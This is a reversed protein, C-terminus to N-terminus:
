RRTLRSYLWRTWRLGAMRRVVPDLQAPVRRRIRTLIAAENPQTVESRPSQRSRATGAKGSQRGPPPTRVVRMQGGNAIKLTLGTMAPKAPGFRTALDVKGPPGSLWCEVRSGEPNAVLRAPLSMRGLLLAGGLEAHATVWLMPLRATLLTGRASETVSVQRPSLKSVVSRRTAGVDISMVGNSALPVVMVGDIVAPAVGRGPCRQRWWPQHDAGYAHVFVNWVGAELAEGMAASTVDIDVTMRTGDPGDTREVPLWFDEGADRAVSALVSGVAEGTVVAEDLSMEVRLRGGVWNAEVELQKEDAAPFENGRDFGLLGCYHALIGIRGLGTHGSRQLRLPADAISPVTAPDIGVADQTLVFPIPETDSVPRHRGIVVELDHEDGFRALRDLAEPALRPSRGHRERSLLLMWGASIDAAAERLAAEGDGVYPQLTVNPRRMALLELRSLLETSSDRVLFTVGFAQYSLTQADISQVLGAIALQEDVLALVTIPARM